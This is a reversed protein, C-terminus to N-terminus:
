LGNGREVDAGPHEAVVGGGLDARVAVVRGQHEVDRQVVEGARRGVDRGGELREPTGGARQELARARGSVPEVYVPVVRQPSLVEWSLHVQVPDTLVVRIRASNRVSRRENASTRQIRKM